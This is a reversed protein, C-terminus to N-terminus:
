TSTTPHIAAPLASSSHHVGTLYRPLASRGSDDAAGFGMHACLQAVLALEGGGFEDPKEWRFLQHDPSVVRRVSAFYDLLM